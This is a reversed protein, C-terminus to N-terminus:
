PKLTNNNNLITSERLIKEQEAKGQEWAKTFEPKCFILHSCNTQNSGYTACDKGLEYAKEKTM